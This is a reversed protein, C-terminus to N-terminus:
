KEKVQTKYMRLPVGELEQKEVSHADSVKIIEKNHDYIKVMIDIKKQQLDIVRANTELKYHLYGWLSGAGFVLPFLIIFFKRLYVILGKFFIAIRENMPPM